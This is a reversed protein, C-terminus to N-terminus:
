ETLILEAFGVPHHFVSLGMYDYYRYEEHIDDTDNVCVNVGLTLNPVPKRGIEEWDIAFEVLYGQDSDTNDNLTGLIKVKTRAKGNWSNDYEGNKTLGRDDMVANLVNVHYALDDKKWELARDYKTDFLIEIGDDKHLGLEDRFKRTASINSNTVKFAFYLQDEDWQVAYHCTDKWGRWMSPVFFDWDADTWDDLKADIKVKGKVKTARIQAMQMMVLSRIPDIVQLETRAGSERAKELTLMANTYWNSKDKPDMEHANIELVELGVESVKMLNLSLSEVEKLGPANEILELISPHNDKWTLLWRKIQERIDDNRNLQYSRVLSSFTLADPADAITIDAFRNFAYHFEYYKGGPNRNYGELPESVGALIKVPQIDRGGVLNRMLAERNKIHGLDHEELQLSIIDMRRYMEAADRINGPSWLREAIVATRPWIRSDITFPTVLESWMTAEGGLINKAAEPSLKLGKPIPDTQYHDSARKMLDIYFGNSLICKYGEESAKKLSAIGRWSHIIADKPLDDNLIEDWGMMNKGLSTLHQQIRKNFHNQLQHIDKLGKEKMFNQIEENDNWHKGENEDGGIHFYDDPFLTVMESFLNNLVEYTKELTPNLTPDFIGARNQLRYPGPASALEPFAVLFASAHGPVDFEPVVRIGKAAAYRVIEKIEEQTFYKGDSAKEHLQPYVKSEVRFGHDDVLHLHLVNMKVAAMGDINRKIVEMPQFHRSVDIMLGRWPFRPEDDVVLGPFYYQGESNNLTQILTELGRMAGFDTKAELMIGKDNVELKYSEDEGLMLKGGRAVKILLDTTMREDVESVKEQSFFMGTRWDLRRLFNASYKELRHSSYGQIAVTFDKELFFRANQREWHKPIPMWDLPDSQGTAGVSIFIFLSLVLTNKLTKM